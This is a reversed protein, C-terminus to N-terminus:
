QAATGSMEVLALGEHPLRRYERHGPEAYTLFSGQVAGSWAAVVTRVRSLHRLLRLPDQQFAPDFLIETRSLYVTTDDAGLVEDLIQALRLARQEATFELLRRSLELNLNVFRGDLHEATKRLVITKGSGVPAVLLVLRHYNTWVSNAERVLREVTREDAQSTM